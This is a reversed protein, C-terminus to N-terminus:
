SDGSHMISDSPLWLCVQLMGVGIITALLLFFIYNLKENITQIGKAGALVIAGFIAFVTVVQRPARSRDTLWGSAFLLSPM